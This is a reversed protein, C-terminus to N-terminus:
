MELNNMIRSRKAQALQNNERQNEYIDGDNLLREDELEQQLDLLDITKDGNLICINHLICASIILLCILDLRITEM